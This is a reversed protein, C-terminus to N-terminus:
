SEIGLWINEFLLSDEGTMQDADAPFYLRTEHADALGNDGFM